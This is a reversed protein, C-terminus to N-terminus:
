KKLLKVTQQGETTEVRLLYAGSALTYTNLTLKQQNPTKHLVEKGVLNFVRLSQIQYPSEVSLRNGVPNSYYSLLPKQTQPLDLTSPDFACVYFVSGDFNSGYSYKRPFIVSMM